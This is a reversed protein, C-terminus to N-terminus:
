AALGLQKALAESDDPQGGICLSDSRGYCTVKGDAIRVFGASVVHGPVRFLGESNGQRGVAQAVDLRWLNDSKPWVVFGVAAHRVYKLEGSTAM